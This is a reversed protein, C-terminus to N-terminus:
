LKWKIREENVLIHCLGKRQAGGVLDPVRALLSSLEVTTVHQLVNKMREYSNSYDDEVKDIISDYTEDELKEFLGNESELKTDKLSEKISEAKYYDMRYRDLKDKYKSYEAKTILEGQSIVSVGADEAFAELIASVYVMETVSFEEPVEIAVPKPFKDILEKLADLTGEITAPKKAKKAKPKTNNNNQLSYLLIAPGISFLDGSRTNLITTKNSVSLSTDANVLAVLEAQVDDFNDEEVLDYCADEFDFDVSAKIRDERAAKRINPFIDLEGKFLEILEKNQIRYKEGKENVVGEQDTILKLLRRSIVSMSDTKAHADFAKCVDSFTIVFM